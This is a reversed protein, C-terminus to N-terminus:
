SLIMLLKKASLDYKELTLKVAEEQRTTYASLGEGGDSLIYKMNGIAMNVSGKTVGIYAAISGKLIGFDVSKYKQVIEDLLYISSELEWVLKKTKM